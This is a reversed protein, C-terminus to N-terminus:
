WKAPVGKAIVSNPINKVVVAGAGVIVNEGIEIEQIVSAGTGIHSCCGVKVGGSLVAGPAVHVHDGISVDHEIITGTNIISNRGIKVGPNIIAGPMIITGEDIKVDESVLAYKSVIVPFKFGIKKMKYFLEVRKKPDGVSGITIFAYRVGNNFLKEMEDDTFRIPVGLIDNGIKEPIDSIGVMEFENLNKLISIVVKCHGGGGVLVMKNKM